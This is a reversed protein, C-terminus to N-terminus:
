CLGGNSSQCEEDLRTLRLGAYPPVPDRGSPSVLLKIMVAWRNM